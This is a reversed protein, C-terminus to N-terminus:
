KAGANIRRLPYGPHQEFLRDQEGTHQIRGRHVYYRFFRVGEKALYLFDKDKLYYVQKINYNIFAGACMLCPEFTTVLFLSNRDLSSFREMGLRKLADSIANIEAHGGADSSHLVTNYGEGIIENQYILLAGIPVDLSELSRHALELLRSFQRENIVVKRKLYYIRLAIVLVISMFLIFLVLYSVPRLYM